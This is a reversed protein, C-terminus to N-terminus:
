YVTYTTRRCAADGVRLVHRGFSISDVGGCQAKRQVWTRVSMRVRDSGWRGQGPQTYHLTMCHPTTYHTTTNNSLLFCAFHEPPMFQIRKSATHPRANAPGSSNPAAAAPKITGRRLSRTRLAYLKQPRFVVAVLCLCPTQDWSRCTSLGHAQQRPPGPDPPLGATHPPLTQSHTSVLSPDAVRHIRACHRSLLRSQMRLKICLVYPTQCAHLLFSLRSTQGAGSSCPAHRLAAVPLRCTAPHGRTQTVHADVLSSQHKSRLTVTIRCRRQGLM